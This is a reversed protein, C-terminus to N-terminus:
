RPCRAWFGRRSRRRSRARRTGRTPRSPGRLVPAPRNGGSPRPPRASAKNGAGLSLWAAALRACRAGGSAPPNRAALPRGSQQLGLAARRAVGPPSPPSPSRAERGGHGARRAASSFSALLSLSSAVVRGSRAGVARLRVVLASCAPLRDRPGSSSAGNADAAVATGRAAPSLPARRAAPLAEMWPRRQRPRRERARRTRQERM